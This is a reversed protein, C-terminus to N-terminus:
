AAENDKKLNKLSNKTLLGGLGLALMTGFISTPEPVVFIRDADERIIGNRVETMYIPQFPTLDPLQGPQTPFISRPLFVMFNNLIDPLGNNNFSFTYKFSPIDDTPIGGSTNAETRAVFDSAAYTRIEGNVDTAIQAFGDFNGNDDVRIQSPLVEGSGDTFPGCFGFTLALVPSSALALSALSATATTTLNKLSNISLM